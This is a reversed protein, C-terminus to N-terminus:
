ELVRMGDGRTRENERMLREGRRGSYKGEKLGEGQDNWPKGRAGSVGEVKGGGAQM